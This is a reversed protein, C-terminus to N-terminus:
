KGMLELLCLRVEEYSSAFMALGGHHNVLDRWNAQASERGRGTFRWGERKAEISLLRGGLQPIAGILDASKLERNSRQSDNALGYRIPRGTADLLVGVNNRWVPIRFDRALGVRIEAQVQDETKGM